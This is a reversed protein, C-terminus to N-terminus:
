KRVQLENQATREPRRRVVRQKDEDDDDDDDDDNYSNNNGARSPFVVYCLWFCLLPKAKWRM